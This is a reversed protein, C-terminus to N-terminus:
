ATGSRHHLQEPGGAHVADAPNGQFGATRGDGAGSDSGAPQGAPRCHCRGFQGAHHRHSRPNTCHNGGHICLPQVTSGKLMGEVIGAAEAEEAKMVPTADVRGDLAQAGEKLDAASDKVANKIDDWGDEIHKELNKFFDAM